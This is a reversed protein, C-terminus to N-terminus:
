EQEGQGTQEPQVQLLGSKALQMVADSVANQVEANIDREQMNQQVEQLRALMQYIETQKEYADQETQQREQETKMAEREMDGQAKAQTAEATAMKAQADAMQAQQEPSPEEQPAQDSLVQPPITRKLRDAIEEAGPWEMNRILLDGAVEWLRPNARSAEFLSNVFEERQTQYSPGATVSVDFQGRTIDGMRGNMTDQNVNVFDGEGNENRIRLTRPTDYVRPVMDLIIRGCHEISRNLNDTFIYTGVDGEQRRAEIARGSRENSQEGLSAEFMGITSKMDYDASQAEQTAGQPIDSRQPRQPAVAAEDNYPLFSWNKVNATRWYNEYGQFARAPGVWPAKPALAVLETMASRWYNYNKQADHAHRILSQYVTSGSDIIERGWVPIVPIYKSPFEVPGELVTSGNLLRWEVKHHKVQRERLIQGGMEIIRRRNNKIDESSEGLNVTEQGFQGTQVLAITKERPVKRFYEVVRVKGEVWWLQRDEGRGDPLDESREVDPYLNSFEDQSLWDSIFAYTADEYTVTEAAPDMYVAFPNRIRKIRVEQEFSTDNAYDTVVRFYGFGNGVAHDFATDYAAGARSKYEIERVLGELVDSTRYNKPEGMEGPQGPLQEDMDIDAPAVHISPRNQRQNGVVQQVFTELRNFTLTPRQDQKRQRVVDDDWQDGARMDIDQEAMDHNHSWADVSEKLRDRAERVVTEEDTSDDQAHVRDVHMLYGDM